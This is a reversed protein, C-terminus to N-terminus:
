VEATTRSLFFHTLKRSFLSVKFDDIPFFTVLHSHRTNRKFDVYSSVTCKLVLEAAASISSPGWPALVRDQLEM